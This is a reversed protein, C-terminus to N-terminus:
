DYSGVGDCQSVLANSTSTEVPVNRRQPEAAGNRRSDKSSRCKRAFHGKRHCNYCEVKSMDFGLSTPGNARLNRRIRANSLSDVNPLSSVPMKACLVSVSAAASVPKTTNNTNSSSVFAINQTTTGASSSSKVKAKYIKLSNFLDDLSQEELDTKNRWILTHTLKQLRDHIQDLSESSFGTFNEYQQKLLTKQVKKTETNGGFRKEIAKMLTKADANSLSDVNPLYSVHMKACVVSVSAAASVPKTTSDTNSSSVFAINQTTTGASSSSKVKAKYIKLNLNVDEQFLSVGHIELQSILKQLRDHIQDLSESSSGIFNEYQQKLLTKQVKKTKTNGGFRKKIAKMLTKADKHSNFKLQHKDPLAMLLTGRAKLENKRALKQEATTPAVPKARSNVGNLFKTVFHDHNANLVCKQCTSCVFHKSDSFIRSNRSREAIPVTKTTVYSTKSAPWNMSKQNDIRPKPKSGNATSQSRASPMVSPRLNRGREQTNKKAEELFHNHVMDNLSFGSSSSASIHNPKACASEKGKPLYHTTVPKSLNNNVDVQSAFRPKSIRPRESKFATPQRVVLQNRHLQLVLKGLISSKAFKTNMSNGKLRKFKSKLAIIAFRKVMPEEDYVPMIDANDANADNGSTNSTDHKEFETGNSETNVLSADLAKSTDVNGEKTQMQRENVKSFNFKQNDALCIIASAMTGMRALGKFIEENLLCATGEADDFRLDSRISEETIVVKTKDVLAQTQEQDNVKKVKATAQGYCSLAAVYEAETISNAVVTEQGDKDKLLPKSTEMSTSATKVKSFGFKKLIKAVYKDQCARPAQHLGYLSKKVKYVKDPFDPDEFGPPQCVYVEEKITGYLFASKVDMQYVMFDKFSAYALFLRIVEIRVVPAFVEDYDIVEEQTYGQAVLRAKNRIVIGREDLKNRFVWKSGIARKGYPLDVLTWVDQLKFQLLEEQM